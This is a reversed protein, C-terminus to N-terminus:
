HLKRELMEGLIRSAPGLQNECCDVRCTLAPHANQQGKRGQADRRVRITAAVSWGPPIGRVTRRSKVDGRRCGAAKRREQRFM